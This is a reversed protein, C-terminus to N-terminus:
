VMIRGFNRRSSYRISSIKKCTRRWIGRRCTRRSQHRWGVPSWRPRRRSAVTRRCALRWFQALQRSMVVLGHWVNMWENMCVNSNCCKLIVIIKIIIDTNKRRARWDGECCRNKKVGLVFVNLRDEMVKRFDWLESWHVDAAFSSRVIPVFHDTKKFCFPQIQLKRIRGCRAKGIRLKVEAVISAGSDVMWVFSNITKSKHIYYLSKRESEREYIINRINCIIGLTSSWWKTMEVCSIM